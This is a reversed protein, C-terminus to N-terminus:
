QVVSEVDPQWLLVERAIKDNRMVHGALALRHNCIVTFIRPLGNYLRQKTVHSKWSVNQAAGLVCTYNGDIRKALTKTIARSESGYLLISEICVKFM